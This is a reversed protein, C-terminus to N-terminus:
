VIKELKWRLEKLASAIIVAGQKELIADELWCLATEAVEVDEKISKMDFEHDEIVGELDQEKNLAENMKGELSDLDMDRLVDANVGEYETSRIKNLENLAEEGAYHIM